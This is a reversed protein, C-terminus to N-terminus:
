AFVGYELRGLTTMVLEAGETTDLLQIPAQDGLAYCPSKLWNMAKDYNKFVSIARSYVKVMQILHDSKDKDLKSSAVRQGTKPSIHLLSYMDNKPMQYAAAVKGLVTGPIGSRVRQIIQMSDPSESGYIEPFITHWINKTGEKSDSVRSHKIALEM